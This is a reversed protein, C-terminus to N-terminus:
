RLFSKLEDQPLQSVSMVQETGNKTIKIEVAGQPQTYRAVIRACSIIDEDNMKGRAIATPGPLIYPYFVTDDPHIQEGLMGNEKENRGVVFFLEPTMRFFRGRKSLKVNAVSLADHTLLDAVRQSFSADTLRCGGGPWPYEILGWEKALSIQRTRGRGSIDFLHKQDLWGKEQPITVSLLLASLPRVLAGGLGSKKEIEQLSRFHQSMPRQNLVEGTIVFQAREQHMIEKAKKLMLIKCDICPNLNRGYGHPPNKLVELFEESIDVIRLRCDLQACISYASSECVTEHEYRLFPIVYHVALVDVGQIQVAKIALASDLGGSLLAIAKLQEIAM